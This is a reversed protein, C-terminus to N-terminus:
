TQIEFQYHLSIKFTHKFLLGFIWILYNFYDDNWLSIVLYCNLIVYNHLYLKTFHIQTNVFM